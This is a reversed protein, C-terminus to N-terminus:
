SAYNLRRIIIDKDRFRELEIKYNILYKIRENIELVEYESDGIVKDMDNKYIRRPTYHNETDKYDLKFYDPYEAIIKSIGYINNKQNRYLVFDNLKM